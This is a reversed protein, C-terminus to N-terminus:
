GALRKREGSQKGIRYIALKNKSELGVVGAFELDYQNAQLALMAAVNETARIGPINLQSLEITTEIGEGSFTGHTESTLGSHFHISPVQGKPFGKILTEVHTMLDFAGFESEFSYVTLVNSIETSRFPLADSNLRIIEKHIKDIFLPTLGSVDLAMHHWIKRNPLSQHAAEPASSSDNVVEGSVFLDPNINVHKDRFPWLSLSYNTGGIKKKLDTESLVTLLTTKNQQSQSRLLASGFIVKSQFHFLPDYGSYSDESIIKVPHTEILAKFRDVWTEGAFKLSVDIFDPIRFPLFINLERNLGAMAEAFLIDSGCALSCFGIHANITMLNSVISEKVQREISAPFRPAQRSPHDIMHGVFAVVGPPSFIRMIEKQVPLYHNLLWLQDYVSSIKGWDSGAVKRAKIYHEISKESEKTLLYAEGLTALEWFDTSDPHIISIVQRAIEKSKSSQMIMASMSAANIGTYHNRTAVFNKLYTDRSQVAFSTQQNKRFMAKYISGMIGATEADEQYNRYVPEIYRQAEEPAGSKSLALAYLQDVRLDSGQSILAEAGQQAELYRGQSILTEIQQITNV